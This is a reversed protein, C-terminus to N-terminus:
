LICALRSPMKVAFVAFLASFYSQEPEKTSQGRPNKKIGIYGCFPVLPAFGSRRNKRKIHRKAALM